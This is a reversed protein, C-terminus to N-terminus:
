TGCARIFYLIIDKNLEPFELNREYCYLLYLRIFQYVRITIENCEKVLNEFIPADKEYNTLLSRLSTKITTFDGSHYISFLHKDKEKNLKKKKTKTM